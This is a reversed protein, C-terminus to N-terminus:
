HSVRSWLKINARANVYEGWRRDARDSRADASQYLTIYLNINDNLDKIHEKATDLQRKLHKNELSILVLDKSDKLLNNYEKLSITVEQM